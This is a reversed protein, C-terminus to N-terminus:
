SCKLGKGKGFHPHPSNQPLHFLTWYSWPEQAHLWCHAQAHLAFVVSNMQADKGPHPSGDQAGDGGREKSLHLPLSPATEQASGTQHGEPFQATAAEAWLGQGGM